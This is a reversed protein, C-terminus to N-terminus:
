RWRRAALETALGAVVGGAVLAAVVDGRAWLWLYQVMLGPVDVVAELPGRYMGMLSLRVMRISSHIFVGAVVVAVTTTLGQGVAARWGQGARTGAIRWGLVLGAGAILIAFRGPGEPLDPAVRSAVLWGLAAWAFAAVLKAATPM